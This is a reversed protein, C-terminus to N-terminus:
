VLEYWTLLISEVKLYLTSSLGANLFPLLVPPSELTEEACGVLPPTRFNM